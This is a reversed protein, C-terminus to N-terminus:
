KCLVELEAEPYYGDMEAHTPFRVVMVIRHRYDEEWDVIIGYIGEVQKHQVLDGVKM